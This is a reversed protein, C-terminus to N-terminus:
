SQRYNRGKLNAGTTQTSGKAPARFKRMNVAQYILFAILVGMMGIFFVALYDM